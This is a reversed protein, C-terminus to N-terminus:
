RSLFRNYPVYNGVGKMGGDGQIFTERSFPVTNKDAWAKVMARSDLMWTETPPFFGGPQQWEFPLYSSNNFWWSPVYHTDIERARRRESIPAQVLYFETDMLNAYSLKVYEPVVQGTNPALDRNQYPLLEPEYLFGPSYPTPQRAM